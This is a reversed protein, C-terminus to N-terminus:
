IGKIVVKDELTVKTKSKIAYVVISDRKLSSEDKVLEKIRKKVELMTAFEEIPDEDLDYKLLFKPAVEKKPLGRGKKILELDKDRFALKMIREDVEYEVLNSSGKKKKIM